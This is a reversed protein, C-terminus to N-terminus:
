SKQENKTFEHIKKSLDVMQPYLKRSAMVAFRKYKRRFTDGQMPRFYKAIRNEETPNESLYLALGHNIENAATAAKQIREPMDDNSWNLWQSYIWPPLLSAFNNLSCSVTVRDYEMIERTEGKVKIMTYRKVYKNYSLGIDYHSFLYAWILEDADIAMMVAGIDCGNISEFGGGGTSNLNVTQANLISAITEPRM